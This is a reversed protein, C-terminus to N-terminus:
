TISLGASGDVKRYVGALPSSAAAGYKAGAGEGRYLEELTVKAM